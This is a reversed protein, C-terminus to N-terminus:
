FTLIAYNNRSPLRYRDIVAKMYPVNLTAAPVHVVFGAGEELATEADLFIYVPAYAASGVESDLGMYKVTGEADNYLYWPSESAGDTIYIRRYNPDFADNLAAQMYCVQSNHALFYLQKAQYNSFLNYIYKVPSILAKLWAFMVNGRLRVPLYTWVANDFDVDFFSM